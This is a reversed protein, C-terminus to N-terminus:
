RLRVSQENLLRWISLRNHRRSGDLDCVVPNTDISVAIPQMLNHLGSRREGYAVIRTGDVITKGNLWVTASRLLQGQERGMRAGLVPAPNKSIAFYHGNFLSWGDLGRVDGVEHWIGIDETEGSQQWFLEAARWNMGRLTGLILFTDQSKIGPYIKVYLINWFEDYDVAYCPEVKNKYCVEGEIYQVGLADMVGECWECMGEDACFIVHPKNPSSYGHLGISENSM